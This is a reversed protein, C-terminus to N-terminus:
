HRTVFTSVQSPIRLCLTRLFKRYGLPRTPLNAGLTFQMKWVRDTVFSEVSFWDNPLRCAYMYACSLKSRGLVSSRGRRLAPSFVLKRPVLVDFAASAFFLM